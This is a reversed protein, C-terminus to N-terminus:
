NCKESASAFTEAPDAWFDYFNFWEYPAQASHEELKTAYRQAFFRLDDIASRNSVTLKESVTVVDFVIKNERAPSRYAFMYSVPCALAKAFMYPGIPICAQRGYFEVSVVSKLGSLPIRDGAIFVWEGANIKEKLTLISSINLEDVQFVNVRSNPHNKQMMRVFNGAHKEFVLINITKGKDRQVFGRCFELNGFHSGIILQGRSDSLLKEVAIPDVLYFDSEEINIIWGLLKELIVDAFSKFHRLVHFVNPKVRWFGANKYYHASLFQLSARRQKPRFLVFYFSVPYMLLSFVWRGFVRHILYLFRMGILTGAEQTRSWHDQQASEVGRNDALNDKRM